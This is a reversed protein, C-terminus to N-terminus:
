PLARRPHGRRSTGVPARSGRPREGHEGPAAGALATRARRALLTGGYGDAIEAARVLAAQGEARRSRHKSALLVRGREYLADAQWPRASMAAARDGAAGLLDLAADDDGLLHELAGLTISVPRHSAALGLIVNRDTWPRLREVIQAAHPRDELLEAVTGAVSLVSLSLFDEHLDAFDRAALAALQEAAGDLDGALVCAEALMARVTPMPAGALVTELTARVRDIGGRERALVYSWILEIERAVEPFLERALPLMAAMADQAAALEGRLLLRTVRLARVRSLQVPARLRHAAEDAAELCRELTPPRGLALAWGFATCNLHMAVDPRDLREALVLMEPLEDLLEETYGPHWLAVGRAVFAEIAAGPDGLRRVLATLDNARAQREALSDLFTREFLLQTRVRAKLRSDPDGLARDARELADVADRDVEGVGGLFRELGPGLAALAQREPDHELEALELAQAFAARAGLPGTSRYRASGLAMLLEYRAAPSPQATAGLARLALEYL